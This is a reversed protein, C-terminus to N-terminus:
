VLGTKRFQLIAASAVVIAQRETLNKGLLKSVTCDTWQVLWRNASGQSLHVKAVVSIRTHDRKDYRVVEWGVVRVDMEQEGYPVFEELM